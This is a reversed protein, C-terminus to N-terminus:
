SAHSRGKLIERTLSRGHELIFALQRLRQQGRPRPRIGSGISLQKAIKLCTYAAFFAFAEERQPPAATGYGELFSRELATSGLWGRRVALLRLYVCFHALDFRPDGLRMEDFDLVALRSDVIVHRHHFDKHIPVSPELRVDTCAAALEAALQRAADGYPPSAAAVRDAWKAAEGVEATFDLERKLPLSTHHLAALWEGARRLGDKVADPAALRDLPRGPAPEYIVMSADTCWGILRPVGSEPPFTTRELGTWTAYVRHARAPRAYQKGFLHWLRGSRADWLDYAVLARSEPKWVLPRAAVLAYESGHGAEELADRLLPEISRVDVLGALAPPFTAVGTM